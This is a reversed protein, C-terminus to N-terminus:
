EGSLCWEQDKIFKLSNIFKKKGKNVSRLSTMYEVLQSWHILQAMQQHAATTPLTIFNLSKELEM